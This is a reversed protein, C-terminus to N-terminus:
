LVIEGIYGPKYFNNGLKFEYELQKLVYSQSFLASM